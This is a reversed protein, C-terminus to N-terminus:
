DRSSIALVYRNIHTEADDFSVSMEIRIAMRYM